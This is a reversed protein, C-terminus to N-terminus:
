GLSVCLERAIELLPGPYIGLALTAATSIALATTVAPTARVPGPGEAEKQMWMAVVVGLYYYAGIASNLLGALALWYLHGEVAAKFITLKGIFGATPPIGTLSLMFVTM